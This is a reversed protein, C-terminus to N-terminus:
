FAHRIGFDLGNSSGGARIPALTAVGDASLSRTGAGKNTLRAATAYVQTRKSLNYGYGVAFKNFDNASDKMDYHALTARLEGVGIPATAGVLFSDLRNNGVPNGSVREQGYFVIPKVVGFDWTAAINGVKLDRGITVPAVDSAGIVQKFQMYAAAVNLPGSQYGFRGGASNGQKDNPATSIKEGFAYQLQGYFGGLNQPLVYGVTNNNWTTAYGFNNAAQTTGVGRAGFPDLQALNWWTPAFDRGLRLEGLTNSALSVTSRRQFLLGGGATGTGTDVGLSGELWFGASIGGGLDETGRFGLRSPTSGGSSVGARNGAGSGGVRTVAADVVGFITVSSQAMAGGSAAVVAMVFAKKGIM